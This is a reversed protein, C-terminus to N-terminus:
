IERFSKSNPHFSLSSDLHSLPRQGSCRSLKWWSLYPFSSIPLNTPFFFCGNQVHQVRTYQVDWYFIQIPLLIFIYDLIKSFTQDLYSVIYISNLGTLRFWVFLSSYLTFPFLSFNTGLANMWSSTLFALIWCFVCLTLCSSLWSHFCGWLRVFVACLIPTTRM